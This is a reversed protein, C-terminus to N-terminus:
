FILKSSQANQQNVNCLCSPQQVFVSVHNSTVRYYCLIYHCRVYILLTRVRRFLLQYKLVKVEYM